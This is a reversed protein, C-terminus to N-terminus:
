FERIGARMSELLVEPDSARSIAIIQVGPAHSEVQKALEAAQGMSETSLFVVEPAAARLLRTLEILDPYHDVTRAVGVRGVDALSRELRTALDQDGCIIVSRLM